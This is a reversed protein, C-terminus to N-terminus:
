AFARVCLLRGKQTACVSSGQKWPNMNVSCFAIRLGPFRPCLTHSKGKTASPTWIHSGAKLSSESSPKRKRRRGHASKSTLADVSKQNQPKRRTSDQQTKDITATSIEEKVKTTLSIPRSSGSMLPTCV